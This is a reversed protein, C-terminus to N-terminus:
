IQSSGGLMIQSHEIKEIKKNKEGPWDKHM